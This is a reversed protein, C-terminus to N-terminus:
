VDRRRFLLNHAYKGSCIDAALDKYDSYTRTVLQRPGKYGGYMYLDYGSNFIIELMDYKDKSSMRKFKTEFAFYEVMRAQFFRKGGYVIQPEFGEVDLKFFTIDPKTEFWGMTEAFHDLTDLQIEGVIYNSLDKNPIHKKVMSKFREKSFTFAGPNKSTARYLTQVGVENSMGKPMPVVLDNHPDDRLWDNLQLSECFRVLNIPNPEFTYVKTAGHAAALLSFWGINGGVDLMIAEKGQKKKEEFIEIIRDSLNTEYYIGNTYSSERTKDIDPHHTSWYFPIPNNTKTVYPKGYNSNHAMELISNQRFTRLLRRCDLGHTSEHM